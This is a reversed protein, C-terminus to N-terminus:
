KYRLALGSFTEPDDGYFMSDSIDKTISHVSDEGWNVMWISTNDEPVPTSIKKVPVVAAAKESLLIKPAVLAVALGKLFSRRKM